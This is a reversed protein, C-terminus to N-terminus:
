TTRAVWQTHERSFAQEAENVFDSFEKEQKVSQFSTHILGIEHATLIYSASLENFKKIQIWGVVSSAVAIFVETPLWTINPDAARMLSFIIALIYAAVCVAVWCKVWRKNTGGKAAYWKRQDQIRATEYLAMRKALPMARIALMRSTVQNEAAFNSPLRTGAYQNAALINKLHNQFDAIASAGAVDDFPPSKMCFRWCSTKVSEALARGQYWAQEPKTVFRWLFLGLASCFLVTYLYYYFSFDAQRISMAACVILTIYEARLSWFYDRQSNSSLLGASKSLAPFDCEKFDFDSMIELQKFLPLAKGISWLQQM